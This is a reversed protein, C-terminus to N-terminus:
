KFVKDFSSTYRDLQQEFKPISGSREDLMEREMRRWILLYILQRLYRDEIQNSKSNGSKRLLPMKLDNGYLAKVEDDNLPRRLSEFNCAHAFDEAISKKTKM